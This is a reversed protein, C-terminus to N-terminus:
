LTISFGLSIETQRLLGSPGLGFPYPTAYQKLDVRILYNDTIRAKVGAGYNFGVKVEGGGQFASAGPPTFNSFHGGVAAFPRVRSGLKNAYLLFHYLGQHIAMGTKVTGSQGTGFQLQTRNYAYGFEHGFYGETNATMRTGIRFGDGLSFGGGISKNLRSVGGHLGAEFGGQACVALAALLTLSAIRLM